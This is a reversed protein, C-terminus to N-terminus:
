EAEPGLPLYDLNAQAVEHRLPLYRSSHDPAAGLDPHM